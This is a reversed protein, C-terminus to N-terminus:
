WAEHFNIVDFVVEHPNVVTQLPIVKGAVTINHQDISSPSEL